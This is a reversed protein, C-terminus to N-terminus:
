SVRLSGLQLTFCSTHTINTISSASGRPPPPQPAAPVPAYGGARQSNCRLAVPSGLLHLRCTASCEKHRRLATVVTDQGANPWVLGLSLSFPTCPLSYRPGANYPTRRAAPGPGQTQIPGKRDQSRGACRGMIPPQESVGAAKENPHLKYSIKQLSSTSSSSVAM